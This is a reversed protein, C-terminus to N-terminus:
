YGPIVEFILGTASAALVYDEADRYWFYGRPPKRLHFRAYDGVVSRFLM